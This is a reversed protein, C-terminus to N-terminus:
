PVETAVQTRLLAITATPVVSSLRASATKGAYANDRNRKRPMPSTPKPSKMVWISGSAISTTGKYAIKPSRANSLVNLPRIRALLANVTGTMVHINFPAISPTGISM